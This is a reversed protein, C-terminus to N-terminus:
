PLLMTVYSAININLVFIFLYNINHFIYEINNM